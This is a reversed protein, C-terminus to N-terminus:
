KPSKNLYEEILVIDRQDKEGRNLVRKLKVFEDLSFFPIGEIMEAKGILYSNEPRYNGLKANSYAEVGDKEVCKRRLCGHFFWKRKWGEKQLRHFLEPQVVMDLDRAERLDHVALM